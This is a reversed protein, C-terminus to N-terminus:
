YNTPYYSVFLSSVLTFPPSVFQPAHAPAVTLSVQYEDASIPLVSFATVDHEIVQPKGANVVRTITNNAVDYAITITDFTPNYFNSTTLSDVETFTVSSAAPAPYVPSSIPPTTSNAEPMAQRMDNTVRTMAIRAQSEASLDTITKEGHWVIQIFLAVALSLVLSIIAVTFLAEIITNGRCIGARTM